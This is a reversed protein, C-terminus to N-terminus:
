STLSYKNLVLNEKGEYIKAMESKLFQQTQPDAFNVQGTRKQMENTFNICTILMQHKIEQIIKRVKEESLPEVTTKNFHNYIFYGSYAIGLTAAAGLLYLNNKNSM